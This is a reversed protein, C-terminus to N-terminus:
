QGPLVEFEINGKRKYPKKLKFQIKTFNSNNFSNM